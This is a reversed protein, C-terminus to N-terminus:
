ALDQGRQDQSFQSLFQGVDHRVEIGKQQLIVTPSDSIEIRKVLIQSALMQGEKVYRTTNEGPVFIIAYKGDNLEVVGTVQVAKAAAIPDVVIPAAPRPAPPNLNVQDIKPLEPRTEALVQEVPKVSGPIPAFPDREIMPTNITTTLLGNAQAQNPDNSASAVQDILAHRDSLKKKYAQKSTPETLGTIFAQDFAKSEVDPDQSNVMGVRATGSTSTSSDPDVLDPRPAETFFESSSQQPRDGCAVAAVAVIATIVALYIIRM